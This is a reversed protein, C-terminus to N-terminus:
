IFYLQNIVFHHISIALTKQPNNKEKQWRQEIMQAKLCHFSSPLSLFIKEPYLLQPLYDSFLSFIEVSLSIQM